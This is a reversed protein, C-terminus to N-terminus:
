RISSTKLLTMNRNESTGTGTSVRWRIEVTSTTGITIPFGAHNHTTTINGQTAGRKWNQESGTVQV